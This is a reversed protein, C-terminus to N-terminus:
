LHKLALKIDAGVVTKRNAHKAFEAAQRSIKIGHEELIETLATVADESVRPAGAKRIIRDVAALPLIYDAM